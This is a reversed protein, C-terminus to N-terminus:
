RRGLALEATIALANMVEESTRRGTAMQVLSSFLVHGLVMGLLETDLEGEADIITELYRSVLSSLERQTENVGLDPAVVALMAAQFLNPQLEVSDIVRQLTGIVRELLDGKAPPAARMAQQLENGWRLIAEAILHDKSGFHHYVTARAVEARKCVADITVAGYGGECALEYAADVLRARRLAQAPTLRRAVATDVRPTAQGRRHYSM